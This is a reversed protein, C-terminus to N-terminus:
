LLEQMTHQFLEATRSHDRLYEFYSQGFRLEFPAKNAVLGEYLKSWGQYLEEGSRIAFSVLSQPSNTLLVEGKPALAFTEAEPETVIDMEALFRLLRKLLEPDCSTAHALASVTKPGEVLAEPLHLRVAAYIAQTTHFGQILEYIDTDKLAM